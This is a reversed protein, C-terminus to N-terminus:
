TLPIDLPLDLGSACVPKINLHLEDVAELDPQAFDEPGQYFRFAFQTM